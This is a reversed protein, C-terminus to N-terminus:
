RFLGGYYKELNKFDSFKFIEAGLGDAINNLCVLPTSGITSNIDKLM